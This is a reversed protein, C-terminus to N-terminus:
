LTFIYIITQDGDLSQFPPPFLKMKCTICGLHCIMSDTLPLAPSTREESYKNHSSGRKTLHSSCTRSGFRSLPLQKIGRRLADLSMYLPLVPAPYKQKGSNKLHSIRSPLKFQGSRTGTNTVDVLFSGLPWSPMSCVQNVFSLLSSNSFSFFWCGQSERQVYSIPSGYLTDYDNNGRM